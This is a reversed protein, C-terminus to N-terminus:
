NWITGRSVLIGLTILVAAEVVLLFSAVMFWITQERGRSAFVPITFIVVSSIFILLAVVGFTLPGILFPIYALM